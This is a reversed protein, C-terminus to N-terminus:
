PQAAPLPLPATVLDGNLYIGNGKGAHILGLTPSWVLADVLGDTTITDTLQGTSVDWIWIANLGGAAIQTGDHNWAIADASEQTQTILFSQQGTDVNLLKVGERYRSAIFEDTPSWIMLRSGGVPFRSSPTTVEIGSALDTERWVQINSIYNSPDSGPASLTTTVLVHGDSSWAVANVLGPSEEDQLYATPLDGYIQAISVGAGVSFAVRGDAPSWDVAGVEVVGGGMLFDKEGTSTNMVSLETYPVGYVLWDGDPSIDFLNPQGTGLEVSSLIELTSTDLMDAFFVTEGADNQESRGLIGLRTGYGSMAIHTVPYDPVTTQARIVPNATMPLLCLVASIGVLLTIRLLIKKPCINM